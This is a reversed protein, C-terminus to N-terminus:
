NKNRLVNKEFDLMGKFVYYDSYFLKVAIGM